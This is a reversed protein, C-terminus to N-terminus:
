RSVNPEALCSGAKVKERTKGLYLPGFSTKRDRLSSPVLVEGIRKALQDKVKDVISM